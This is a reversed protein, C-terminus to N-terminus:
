RRRGLMEMRLDAHDHGWQCGPVRYGEGKQLGKCTAAMHYLLDQPNAHISDALHTVRQRSLAVQKHKTLNREFSATEHQTYADLSKRVSISGSGDHGHGQGGRTLQGASPPNSQVLSYRAVVGM